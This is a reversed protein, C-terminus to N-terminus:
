FLNATGMKYCHNIAELRQAKTWDKPSKENTMTSEPKELKSDKALRIWKQLTSYGVGLEEAICRLTQDPRRSLAKKVSQLKFEQSFRGM